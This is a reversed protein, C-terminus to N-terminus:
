SEGVIANVLNPIEGVHVWSSKFIIIGGHKKIASESAKQISDGKKLFSRWDSVSMPTFTVICLLSPSSLPNTTDPNGIGHALGQLTSFISFM